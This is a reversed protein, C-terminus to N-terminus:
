GLAKNVEKKRKHSLYGAEWLFWSRHFVWNISWNKFIKFHPYFELMYKVHVKSTFACFIYHKAIDESNVQKWWIESCISLFTKCYFTLAYYYEKGSLNIDNLMTKFSEHVLIIALSVVHVHEELCSLEKNGKWKENFFM